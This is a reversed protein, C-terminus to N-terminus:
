YPPFNKNKSPHPSRSHTEGLEMELGSIIGDLAWEYYSDFDSRHQAKLARTLTPYKAEDIKQARHLQRQGPSDSRQPTSALTRPNVFFVLLAFARWLEEGAFGADSLITLITETWRLAASCGSRRVLHSNLGRYEILKAQMSLVFTRLRDQWPLNRDPVGVEAVLEDALADLIAEKNPFHYYLATATFGLQTAVQRTSVGDFGKELALSRAVDVIAQPSRSEIPSPNPSRTM